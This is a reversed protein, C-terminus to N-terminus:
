VRRVLMRHCRQCEHGERRCSSRREVFGDFTTVCPEAVVLEARPQDLRRGFRNPTADLAVLASPWPEHPVDLREEPMLIRGLRGVLSEDHIAFSARVLPGPAQKGSRECGFRLAPAM